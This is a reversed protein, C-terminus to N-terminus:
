FISPQDIQLPFNQDIQLPFNPDIQHLPTIPIPTNPIPTNPIPTRSTQPRVDNLRALEMGGLTSTGKDRYDYLLGPCYSIDLTIDLYHYSGKYWLGPPNSAGSQSAAVLPALSPIPYGYNLPVHLNWQRETNAEFLLKQWELELHMIWQKLKFKEVAYQERDQRHQAEKAALQAEYETREM